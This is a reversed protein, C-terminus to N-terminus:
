GAGNGFDLGLKDRYIGIRKRARDIVDSYQVIEFYTEGLQQRTTPDVLGDSKFWGAGTPFPTWGSLRLTDVTDGILYGYFKKLRGGSKAALLQAYESLDGIHQDTPVGPAKFEIIIVSGEKSFVAIDPRKQDNESTRKELVSQLVEDIDSEFLPNEGDFKFKSLLMDSAIYEYYQYEESLLWIDHDPADVSDKRMPFFISHIIEEDKRREGQVLEQMKLQKRCAFDLIDVLAARRVILQSLNAMDFNKLSSTYKWSLEQIKERFDTSNPEANVIAEKLSFIEATEELVIKQYKNLVREAVSQPTDGYIVRTSTENLMAGSIGFQQTAKDIVVEKKWDAPNVMSGVLPDIAQHIDAYSLKESAFLEGSPISEPINDFDDRAENVHSDLYEAEVLVIHHYGNLPNNQEAGTRLYHKTIDKVPTSKACFSIANRPLGYEIANLRYHSIVFRQKSGLEVGSLPDREPIDVSLRSTVEPLDGKSLTARQPEAEKWHNSCFNIEFEGLEVQLGVLRQLFAILVQQRLVSAAFLSSLELGNFLKTRVAEKFQDLCVVTGVEANEVESIRFDADDIQKQPEIFRVSRMKLIHEASYISEIKLESFHHFYQIRGAGKCRGIGPILLDDKYSTDKTLFAKLQADGLGCGNDSCSITMTERENLLDARTFDITLNVKLPEASPEGAKRILYADIANSILEEFVIYRNASLKTNKLSGRIDLTMKKYIWTLFHLPLLRCGLTHGLRKRATCDIADTQFLSNIGEVRLRARETSAIALGGGGDGWFGQM